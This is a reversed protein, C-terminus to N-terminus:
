NKGLRLSYSTSRGGGPNKLLVKKLLLDEEFPHNNFDPWNKLLHIYSM